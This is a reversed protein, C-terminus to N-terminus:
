EVEDVIAIRVRDLLGQVDEGERQTIFVQRRYRHTRTEVTVEVTM